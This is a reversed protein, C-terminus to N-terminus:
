DHLGINVGHISQKAAAATPLPLCFCLIDGPYKAWSCTYINFEAAEASLSTGHADELVKSPQTM